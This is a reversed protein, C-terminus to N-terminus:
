YKIKISKIEIEKNNLIGLLTSSRFLSIREAECRNPLNLLDIITKFLLVLSRKKFKLFHQSSFFLYLALNESDIKYNSDFNKQFLKGKFQVTNRNHDTKYHSTEEQKRHILLM